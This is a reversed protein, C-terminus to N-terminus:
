HKGSIRSSPGCPDSTNYYIRGSRRAFSMGSASARTGTARLLGLEDSGCIAGGPGVIGCVSSEDGMSEDCISSFMMAGSAGDITTSGNAGDDDIAETVYLIVDGSKPDLTPFTKRTRTSVEKMSFGHEWSLDAINYNQTVSFGMYAELYITDIHHEWSQLELQFIEMLTFIYDFVHMMRYVLSDIIIVVQFLVLLSAFLDVCKAAKLLSAM